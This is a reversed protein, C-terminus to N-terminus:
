PLEPLPTGPVPLVMSVSSLVPKSVADVLLPPLPPSPLVTFGRPPSSCNEAECFAASSAFFTVTWTPLPLHPDSVAVFSSPGRASKIFNERPILCFAMPSYISSAVPLTISKSRLIDCVAALICLFIDPRVALMLPTTMSSTLLSTCSPRFSIPIGSGSNSTATLSLSFSTLSRTDQRNLCISLSNPSKILPINLSRKSFTNSVASQKICSITPDMIPLIISLIFPAMPISLPIVPEILPAASLICFINLLTNSIISRNQSPSTDHAIPADTNSTPVPALFFPLSAFCSCIACYGNLGGLEPATTPLPLGLFPNTGNTLPLPSFCINSVFVPTLYGRSETMPLFEPIESFDNM